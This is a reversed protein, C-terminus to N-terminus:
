QAYIPVCDMMYRRAEGWPIYIRSDGPILSVPKENLDIRVYWKGTKSHKMLIFQVNAAMPVISFDRWNKGVTDFYNTLYYCGPLRLISILPLVTEAHGFRLDAVTSNQGEIAQDARTIIDLVLDSAIDAPVSSVTTSSRQLYQRLNFCSWLANMEDATFYKSMESKMEMAQLGALVYYETLSLDRAANTDGFPYDRGLVKTIPTIPCFEEFYEDYAPKWLDDERFEIYDRNTDFPRMLYSFKRGASTSYELKNNLRDMQHMFSYMSMMSRPSYSCLANVAGGEKFVSPFNKMMRTAISRQEAMGLSDLAGWKNTSKEMINNTLDLLDNGLKTITGIQKANELAEKLKQCHASSAPYRSGHRGVHSIYLPILSDPVSVPTISTPYPTLSGECQTPNYLTENPNEGNLLMFSFFGIISM